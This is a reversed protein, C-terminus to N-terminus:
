WREHSWDSGLADLDAATTRQARETKADSFLDDLASTIEANCKARVAARLVATIYRSRSEGRAAAARDIAALLDEPVTVARKRCPM